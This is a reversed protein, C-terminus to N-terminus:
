PRLGGPPNCSPQCDSSNNCQQRTVGEGRALCKQICNECDNQQCGGQCSQCSQGNCGLLIIAGLIVRYPMLRQRIFRMLRKKLDSM